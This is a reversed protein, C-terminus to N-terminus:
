YKMRFSEFEAGFFTLHIYKYQNCLSVDPFYNVLHENQRFKFLHIYLNM